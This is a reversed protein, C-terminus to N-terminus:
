IAAPSPAPEANPTRRTELTTFALTGVGALIAIAGWAVGVSSSV